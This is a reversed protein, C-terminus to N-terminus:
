EISGRVIRFNPMGGNRGVNARLRGNGINEMSRLRNANDYSEWVVGQSACHEVSQRKTNKIAVQPKCPSWLVPVNMARARALLDLDQYGMPLFSEDYGGLAFFLDSKLAIRGCTGDRGIGSWMHLARCGRSFFHDIVTVSDDIFNDCDINVLIDGVGVKHALNKAFSVHWDLKDLIGVYVVRNSFFKLSEFISPEIEGSLYHVIIWEVHSNRAVIEANRLLVRQLQKERFCCTTCFSIKNVPVSFADDFILM